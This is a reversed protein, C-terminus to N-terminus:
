RASGGSEKRLEDILHRLEPLILRSLALEVAKPSGPISFVPRGRAVGGTARTLMAASGVQEFSLARFLEGFGPLKIELLGSIAEHTRDRTSIGTGGNVVVADCGDEALWSLVQARVQEPEDRAVRYDFVRHGAAEIARRALDGSADTEPSRTDSVTLVAVGISEPTEGTSHAHAM